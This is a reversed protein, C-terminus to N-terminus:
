INKITQILLYQPKSKAYSNIDSGLIEDEAMNGAEDYHEFSFSSGRYEDIWEIIFEYTPGSGTITEHLSENIYMEVRDM